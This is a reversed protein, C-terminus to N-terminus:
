VQILLDLFNVIIKPDTYNNEIKFEKYKEYMPKREVYLDDFTLNNDNVVNNPVTNGSRNKISEITADIFIIVGMKTLFNMLKKSYIVSGGTSIVMKRSSNHNKDFDYNRIINDEIDLFKESGHKELIEYLSLNNESEIIKDTDFHKWGLLELHKGITSKGVGPMGILILKNCLLLKLIQHYNNHSYIKIQEKEMIKNYKLSTKISKNLLIDIEKKYKIPSGTALTIYLGDHERKYYNTAYIGVATHPDITYNYYNYIYRITEITNKESVSISLIDNNMEKHSNNFLYLLRNFNSPNSIDMANSLTNIIESPQYKNTSLYEPFTKNDNCAIIIKDIPLGMKKSLICATANGLNGSPITFIIKEKHKEMKKIDRYCIFYYIIQPILRLINISNATILNYKPKLSINILLSKVIKQCDDFTGDIAFCTVNSQSTMQQEQYKSTKGDPYLIIVPINKDSFASAAAGGTDGSTAVIIRNKNMNFPNKEILYNKYINAMISMGFDKFSESDGHFLELVYSDNNLRHLPCKFNISDEIIKNLIKNDIDFYYSLIKSSIEKDTYNEIFDFWKNDVIPIVKPLWIDNNLTTSYLIAKDFTVINDPNSCSLWKM